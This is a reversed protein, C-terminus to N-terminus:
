PQPWPVIPWATEQVALEHQRAADITSDRIAAMIEVTLEQSSAFSAITGDAIYLDTLRGVGDVEPIVRSSPSPRRARIRDIRELMDDITHVLARSSELASITYPHMMGSRSEAAEAALLSSNRRPRLLTSVVGDATDSRLSIGSGCDNPHEIKECIM